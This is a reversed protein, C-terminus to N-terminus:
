WTITYFGSPVRKFNQWCIDLKVKFGQAILIKAIERYHSRDHCARYYDYVDFDGQIKNNGHEAARLIDKQLGEICEDIRKEHIYMYKEKAIRQVKELFSPENASDLNMNKKRLIKGHELMRAFKM